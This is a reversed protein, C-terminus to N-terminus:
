ANNYEYSVVLTNGEAQTLADGISPGFTFTVLKQVADRSADPGFGATARSRGVALEKGKGGAVERGDAAAGGCAARMLDPGAGGGDSNGRRGAAQGGRIRGRGCRVGGGRGGRGTRRLESGGCSRGAGARGGYSRGAGAEDAVAGCAAAAVGCSRGARSRGGDGRM